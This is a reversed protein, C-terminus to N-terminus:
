WFQMQALLVLTTCKTLRTQCSSETETEVAIPYASCYCLKALQIVIVSLALLGYSRNIDPMPTLQGTYILAYLTVMRREILRFHTCMHRSAYACVCATPSYFSRQMRACLCVCRCCHPWFIIERRARSLRDLDIQTQMRESLATM